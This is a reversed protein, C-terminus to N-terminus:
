TGNKNLELAENMEKVLKTSPKLKGYDTEKWWKNKLKLPISKWQQDTFYKAM